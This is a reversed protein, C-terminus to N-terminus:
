LSQLELGLSGTGRRVGSAGACVYHVSIYRVGSAGACVYHVSIYRVGSAGACVYHV